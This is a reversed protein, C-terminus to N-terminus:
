QFYTLFKKTFGYLGAVGYTNCKWNAAGPPCDNDRELSWYHVGGLGNAKAFNSVTAVDNLTFIYEHQPAVPFCNGGIMPTVEIQNYPISYYDHLNKAVQNASAGMDCTGGSVVCQSLDTYCMTMPNILYNTLGNVKISNLVQDGLWLFPDGGTSKAVSSLTFSYRLNPYTAQANKTRLVLSDVQARTQTSEIDFDIGILYASQYTKIFKFFNADSSCTFIGGEGGTSIIYKKKAAVLTNIISVVNSITTGAGWNESGCEGNAFALTVVNLGLNTM